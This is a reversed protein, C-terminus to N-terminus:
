CYSCLRVFSCYVNVFSYLLVICKGELLINEDVESPAPGDGSNVIKDATGSTTFSSRVSARIAKRLGTIYILHM